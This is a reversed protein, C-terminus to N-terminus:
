RNGNNTFHEEIRDKIPRDTKGIYYRNDELQLVYIACM